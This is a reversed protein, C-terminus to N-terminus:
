EPGKGGERRDLWDLLRGQEQQVEEIREDALEAYITGEDEAKLAINLLRTDTVDEVLARLVAFVVGPDADPRTRAGQVEEELFTQLELGELSAREWFRDRVQEISLAASDAPTHLHDWDPRAGDPGM